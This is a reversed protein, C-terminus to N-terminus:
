VSHVSADFYKGGEEYWGFYPDDGYIAIPKDDKVIIYTIDGWPVDFSITYYRHTYIEDEQSMLIHMSSAERYADEKNHISFNQLNSEQTTKGEVHEFGYDTAECSILCDQWLLDKIKEVEDTGFHTFGLLSKGMSETLISSASDLFFTYTVEKVFLDSQMIVSKEGSPLTWDIAGVIDDLSQNSMHLLFLM